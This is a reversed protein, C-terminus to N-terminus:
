TQVTAAIPKASHAQVRNRAEGHSCKPSGDTTVVIWSVAMNMTRVMRDVSDGMSVRAPPTM